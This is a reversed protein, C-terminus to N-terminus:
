SGTSCIPTTYFRDLQVGERALRDLSPTDIQSGGHFGVDAWGLDDALFVVVNPRDAASAVAALALALLGLAMGRQAPPATKKTAPQQQCGECGQVFAALVLGLVLSRVPSSFSRMAPIGTFTNYVYM